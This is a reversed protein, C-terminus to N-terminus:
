ELDGTNVWQTHLSEEVGYKAKTHHFTNTKGSGNQKFKTAVFNALDLLM